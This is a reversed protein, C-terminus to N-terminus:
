VNNQSPLIAKLFDENQYIQAEKDFDCYYNILDDYKLEFNALDPSFVEGEGQSIHKIPVEAKKLFYSNSKPPM